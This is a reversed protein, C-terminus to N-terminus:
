IPPPPPTQTFQTNTESTYMKFLKTAPKFVIYIHYMKSTPTFICDSVIQTYTHTHEHKYVNMDMRDTGHTLTHTRDTPDTPRKHLTRRGTRVCRQFITYPLTDQDRTQPPQTFIKFQKPNCVCM